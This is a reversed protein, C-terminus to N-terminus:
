KEPSFHYNSHANHLHEPYQINLGVVYEMKVNDPTILIEDFSINKRNLISIGKQRSNEGYSM